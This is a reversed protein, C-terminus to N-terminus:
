YPLNDNGYGVGVGVGSLEPEVAEYVQAAQEVMYALSFGCLYSRRMLMFLMLRRLEVTDLLPMVDAEIYALQEVMEDADGWLPLAPIEARLAAGGGGSSVGSLAKGVGM